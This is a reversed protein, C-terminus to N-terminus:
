CNMAGSLAAENGQRFHFFHLPQLQDGCEPCVPVLRPSVTRLFFFFFRPFVFLVFTCPLTDTFGRTEWRPHYFGNFSCSSRRGHQLVVSSSLCCCFLFFFRGFCRSLCVCV